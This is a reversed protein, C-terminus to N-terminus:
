HQAGSTPLGPLSVPIMRTEGSQALAPQSLFKDWNRQRDKPLKRYYIDAYTEREFETLSEAPVQHQWVQKIHVAALKL